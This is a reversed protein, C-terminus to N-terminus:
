IHCKTVGAAIGGSYLHAMTILLFCWYGALCDFVADLDGQILCRKGICWTIIIKVCRHRASYCRLCLLPIYTKLKLKIRKM